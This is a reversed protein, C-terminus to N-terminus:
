GTSAWFTMSRLLLFLLMDFRPCWSLFLKLSHNAARIMSIYAYSSLHTSHHLQFIPIPSLIPIPHISPICLYSTIFTSHHPISIAMCLTQHTVMCALNTCTVYPFHHSLTSKIPPLALRTHFHITLNITFFNSVISFLFVRLCECQYLLVRLTVFYSCSSSSCLFSEFLNKSSQGFVWNGGM